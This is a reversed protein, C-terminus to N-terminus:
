RWEGQPRAILLHVSVTSRRLEWPRFADALENFRIPIMHAPCQDSAYLAEPDGDIVKGEYLLAVGDPKLHAKITEVAALKDPRVLHQIVTCCLVFDFRKGLRCNTADALLFHIRPSEYRGAAYEIRGPTSDVGVYRECDFMSLMPAWKGYGCGLDLVAYRRKELLIPAVLAVRAIAGQDLLVDYPFFRKAAALEHSPRLPGSDDSQSLALATRERFSRAADYGQKGTDTLM